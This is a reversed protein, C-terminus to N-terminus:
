GFEPTNTKGILIAGAAKFAAVAPADVAPVNDALTRSGATTRVGATAILDKVTFPVGALSGLAEGLLRREDLDDAVALSEEACVTVLANLEGNCEDVRALHDEVVTRASAQGSRVAEAISRADRGVWSERSM